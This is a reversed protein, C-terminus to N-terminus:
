AWICLNWQSQRKDLPLFVNNAHESETAVDRKRSKTGIALALPKSNAQVNAITLKFHLVSMGLVCKTGTPNM